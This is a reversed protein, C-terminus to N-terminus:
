ETLPEIVVHRFAAAGRCVYLGLAARPDLGPDRDMPDKASRLTQKADALLATRDIQSVLQGEWSVRIQQPSVDVALKRWRGPNGMAKEPAFRVLNGILRLTVTLEDHPALTQRHCQVFLGFPNGGPSRSGPSAVNIVDNFSLRCYCFAPWGALTMENSLGFYLGVESAVVTKFEEHRVEARLRYSRLIPDPLLELLGFDLHQVRFAGDSASSLQGKTEDTRWRCWSPGGIEGILDVRRGAALEGQIRELQRVPDRVYMIVPAILAALVLLGVAAAAWPHRRVSRWSRRSWTEPRALIPEDRQWHKLDEALALASPYREKTEKELCKLCITQLDRALKPLLRRPPLADQTLVLQRTVEWSEAVFPPRGTLLEYLIAGLAYVDTAAGVDKTKGAAQEPAMYSPTGMVTGTLTQAAGADLRKALGFDAIKPICDTLSVPLGPSMSGTVGGGQRATQPDGQATSQLLVNAPKLDRHVIGCQHAAHVARALTEVVQAALPPSQPVGHIRQALNGGDVYELLFYPRSDCENVEYIQVINPHKLRAVAEAERKFRLLEEPGALDGARIMKLAVLRNLSLQRAQYVVGMGGRGLEKLIEYGPVTPAPASRKAYGSDTQGDSLHLSPVRAPERPPLEIHQSGVATDAEQGGSPTETHVVQNEGPESM